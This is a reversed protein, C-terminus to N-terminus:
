FLNWSVGMGLTEQYQLEAVEEKEYKLQFYLSATIVSFLRTSLSNEWSIDPSKWDDNLEDSRSNFLAQFVSLRSSFNLNTLKIAKNYETIWELGGDNTTITEYEDITLPVVSHRDVNQRLAAGLRTILIENERERLTKAVGAGESFRIPNIFRTNDLSEQSLDLFQSEMRASLYPDVFADLTFRLLSELDIKDTSKEPEKWYSEGEADTDQSHTQGFALKLTTKDHMYRTLQIEASTDSNGFWTINSKETGAWNDSYASQALSIGINSNIKWGASLPIAVIAIMVTLFVMKKM